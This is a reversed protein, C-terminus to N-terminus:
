PLWPRSLSDLEAPKQGGDGPPVPFMPYATPPQPAPEIVRRDIVFDEAGRTGSETWERDRTTPTSAHLFRGSSNNNERSLAAGTAGDGAGRM